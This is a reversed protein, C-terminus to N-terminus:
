RVRKKFEGRRRVDFGSRHRTLGAGRTSHEWATENASSHKAFTRGYMKSYYNCQTFEVYNKKVYKNICHIRILPLRIVGYLCRIGTYGNGHIRNIVFYM